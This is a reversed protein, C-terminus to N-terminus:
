GPREGVAALLKARAAAIGVKAQALDGQARTLAAFADLREVTTSKGAAYRLDALRSSEAAADLGAQAAGLESQATQWNLFSSAVDHEVTLESQVADAQARQVRAAAAAEDAKRLGADYLPISAAIGITYGARTSGDQLTGDAMGIGYIQPAYEAHVIGQQDAAAAKLRSAAVLEARRSLALDLAEKVSGPLSPSTPITDVSDAISLDSSQSVGLAQKLDVLALAADNKAKLLSQNAEALEAQERLLDVQALKGSGVKDQAIAVQALEASVRSQAVDILSSQLAAALYAQAVSSESALMSAKVNEDAALSQELAVNAAGHLRGGTYLPVMLTINQDAFGKPSSLLFNQPAVSSAGTLINSSDGASAYTTASIAAGEQAKASRVSARSVGADARSQAIAISHADALALAQTYSIPGNIVPPTDTDAHALPAVLLTLMSIYIKFRRM